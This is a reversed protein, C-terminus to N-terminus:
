YAAKVLFRADLFHEADDTERHPALLHAHINISSVQMLGEQLRVIPRDHIRTKHFPQNVLAKNSMTRIGRCPEDANTSSGSCAGYGLTRGLCHTM